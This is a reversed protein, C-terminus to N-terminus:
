VNLLLSRPTLPLNYNTILFIQQKVLSWFDHIYKCHWWCHLYDARLGCGKWCTPQYSLSIHSLRSPTMYWHALMKFYQLKLPIARTRNSPSNWIASWLGDDYPLKLDKHWITVYSPPKNYRTKTM